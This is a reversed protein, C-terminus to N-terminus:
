FPPSLVLSKEYNTSPPVILLFVDFDSSETITYTSLYWKINGRAAKLPRHVEYANRAPDETTKIQGHFSISTVMVGFFIKSECIVDNLVTAPPWTPSLFRAIGARSVKANCATVCINVKRVDSQDRSCCRDKM